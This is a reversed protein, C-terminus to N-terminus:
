EPEEALRKAIEEDLTSGEYSSPPELLRVVRHRRDTIVVYPLHSARYASALPSVDTQRSANHTGWDYVVPYTLGEGLAFTRAVGTDESLCIAVPQVGQAGYKKVVEELRALLFTSDPDQPSWLAIILIKSPFHSLGTPKGYQDPLLFGPALEGPVISQLEMRELAKSQRAMPDHGDRVVAWLSWLGLVLLTPAMLRLIAPTKTDGRWKRRYFWLNFCLLAVGLLTYGLLNQTYWVFYHKALYEKGSIAVVWYLAILSGAIASDTLSALCYSASAVFFLTFVSRIFQYLYASAGMLGLGTALRSLIAGLFLAVIFCLIQGFFGIFRALALREPPQPKTFVVVETRMQSDRVAGLAIWIAVIVGLFRCATDGVGYASTAVGRGGGGGVSWGLLILLLSLFRFQGSRLGMKLETWAMFPLPSKPRSTNPLANPPNM